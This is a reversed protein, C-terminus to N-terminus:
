PMVQRWYREVQADDIGAPATAANVRKVVGAGCVPAAPNVQLNLPLDQLGAAAALLAYGATPACGNIEVGSPRAAHVAVILDGLDDFAQNGISYYAAHAAVQLRPVEAAMSIGSLAAALLAAGIVGHRVGRRIEIRANM